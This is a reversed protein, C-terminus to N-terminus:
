WFVWKTSIANTVHTSIYKTDEWTSSHVFRGELWVIFLLYSLLLIKSCFRITHNKLYLIGDWSFIDFENISRLKVVWINHNSPGINNDWESGCRNFYSFNLLYKPWLVLYSQNIWLSPTSPKRELAVVEFFFLLKILKFLQM